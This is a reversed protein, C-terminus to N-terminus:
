HFSGVYVEVTHNPHVGLIDHESVISSSISARGTFSVSRSNSPDAAIRRMWDWPLIAKPSSLGHSSLVTPADSGWLRHLMGSPFAIKALQYCLAPFFGAPGPFIGQGTPWVNSSFQLLFYLFLRSVFYKNQGACRQLLMM